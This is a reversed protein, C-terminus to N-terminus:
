TLLMVDLEDGDTVGDGDPLVALGNAAAMPDRANIPAVGTAVVMRETAGLLLTANVFANVDDGTQTAAREDIIKPCYGIRVPVYSFM